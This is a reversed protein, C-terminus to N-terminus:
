RRCLSIGHIQGRIVLQGKTMRSLELGMGCICIDGFKVRIRIQERGYETVGMHHEVLVRTDGYLEVLPLGPICEDPLDAAITLRELLREKKDM